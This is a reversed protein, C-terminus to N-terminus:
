RLQEDLWDFMREHTLLRAMPQCHFNAGEAATFPVLHGNPVLSALKAPQGPWFQEDEPDCIFLPTGIQGAVETLEYRRVETFADFLSDQRYPRARFHVAQRVAPIKMAYRMDRDFAERNGEDLMKLM